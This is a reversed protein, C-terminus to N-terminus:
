AEKGFANIMAYKDKIYKKEIFNMAYNKLLFALVGVTAVVIYGSFGGVFKNFIWFLLMPFLMLPIMIIFQTASTGQTNGFGGKTLDIRKRNYSGAYILFLSNFGINFVAGATIMLFIDLGFYLYPISLLYLISTMVVMLIWKSELFKRYKFSQSMLMKYHASDWAPIFQGYNLAFGGTVFLSAFMLMAPMKQYTEQTFFILGYFLFPFSMLFVTRTRKNRWILRIDNKIFPAVDGLRDTFSLDVSKAETVKQSVAEDLYVQNRLQKYNLYYLTVLVLIGILAFTPNAYVFDFIRGGATTVDYINFKQLAILAALTTAIVGFVVNNKNILFNLFNSSQIIMIILFLWGLVGATNYGEKILVISFPIYFFLGLINFASFSSKGLVYHVLRSKKIPLILFPKINMIPLKQMLYRFILDGLIAYLLYSNVIQLPDQEPFKEKLFFYGGIGIGLFITIFYLVFFGMIIKIGIGKQWHSSRFYQKWELKLFHSIM